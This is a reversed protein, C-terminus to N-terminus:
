WLALRVEDFKPDARVAANLYTLATAPTEALLGKIYNEFAAVPPHAPPAGGAGAASPSMVRGAMREFTAFLVAMRGREPVDAQLKGSELAISRARVVLDDGDLQVTGLVVQGAGVIQGIRIVTADTLSATPPVQLVDFAQRREERTIASVGFANLDDALLVAAAEGMWIIRGDHKVNEFPMVLIRGPAPDVAQASGRTPALLMPLAFLITLATKVLHEASVGPHDRGRGFVVPDEVHVPAGRDRPVRGRDGDHAPQLTFVATHVDSRLLRVAPRRRSRSGLLVGFGTRQHAGHPK